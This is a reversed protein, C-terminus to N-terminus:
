GLVVEFNALRSLRCLRLLLARCRRSRRASGAWRSSCLGVTMRKAPCSLMSGTRSRSQWCTRRSVLTRGQGLAMPHLRGRTRDGRHPRRHDSDNRFTSWSLACPPSGTPRSSSSLSFSRRRISHGGCDDRVAMSANVSADVNHVPPVQLMTHRCTPNPPRPWYQPLSPPFRTRSQM